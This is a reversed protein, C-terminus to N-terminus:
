DFFLQFYCKVLRVSHAIIYDLYPFLYRYLSLFSRRFIKFYCKVLRVSHTIITKYPLSTLYMGVNYRSLQIHKTM